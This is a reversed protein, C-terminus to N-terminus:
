KAATPVKEPMGPTPHIVPNPNAAVQKAISVAAGKRQAILNAVAPDKMADPEIGMEEYFKVLNMHCHQCVIASQLIERGCAGCDKLTQNRKIQKVWEREVGRSRAARRHSDTINRLDGQAWRQDADSILALDYNYQRDRVYELEEATPTEGIILMIGPGYGSAQGLAGSTWIDVLSQAAIEAPIPMPVNRDEDSMFDRVLQMTDYVRLLIYGEGKKVDTVVDDTLPKGQVMPERVIIKDSECEPISYLTVGHHKEEKHRALPCVSLITRSGPIFQGM